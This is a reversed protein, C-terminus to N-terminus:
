RSPRCAAARRPRRARITPHLRLRGDPAHRIDSIIVDPVEREFCPPRRHRRRRRSVSAGCQALAAGFLELTDQDDDVLLVRVGTLDPETPPEPPRAAGSSRPTAAPPPAAPLTVTSRRARGRAKARPWWAATICSPSIACSPWASPRLGGQSRRSTSDGQNFREFIRAPARAPHRHRHRAGRDHSPTRRWGCRSTSGAARRRSSSPTRSWILVVQQLRAADGALAPLVGEV